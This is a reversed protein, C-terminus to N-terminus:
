KVEEKAAGSAGKSQPASDPLDTTYDSFVELVRKAKDSDQDTLIAAAKDFAKMRFDESGAADSARGVRDLFAAVDILKARNELFYLDVTKTFGLPNKIKSKTM